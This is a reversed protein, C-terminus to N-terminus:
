FKYIIMLIFLIEVVYGIILGQVWERMNTYKIKLDKNEKALLMIKKKLNETETTM